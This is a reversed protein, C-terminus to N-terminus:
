SVLTTIFGDESSIEDETEEDSYDYNDAESLSPPCPYFTQTRAKRGKKKGKQQMNDMSSNLLRRTRYEHLVREFEAWEEDVEQVNEEGFEEDHIVREDAFKKMTKASNSKRNM